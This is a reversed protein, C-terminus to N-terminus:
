RCGGPQKRRQRNAEFLIITAAMAANLSEVSGCMPIKVAGDARETLADSLGHAENGIMLGCPECYDVGAYDVAGKLHAAYIKLGKGEPHPTGARLQDVAELLDEVCLFPVRFLAGMTSRVVKPSYIDVCSKDMLIGTAGAAEAARLITGLNGPDQLTELIVLLPEREKGPLELLERLGRVRKQRALALIGQPTVTDSMQRMEQETVIEYGRSRLIGECSEAYKSSLFDQTVFIEEAEEPPLEGCMKPGDVVYLGSERRVKPKQLLEKIFKKKRGEAM